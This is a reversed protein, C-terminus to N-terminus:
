KGQLWPSPQVKLDITLLHAIKKETLAQGIRPSWRCLLTM